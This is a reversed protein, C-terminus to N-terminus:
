ILSEVREVLNYRVREPTGAEWFNYFTPRCIHFKLKKKDGYKVEVRKDMRLSPYGYSSNGILKFCAQTLKSGTADGRRRGETIWDLWPQFCKNESFQLVRTVNTVTLKQNLYYQLLDTSVVTQSVRFVSMVVERGHPPIAQRNEAIVRQQGKLDTLKVTQRTLLPPLDLWEELREEPVEIDCEM